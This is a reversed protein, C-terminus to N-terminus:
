PLDQEESFNWRLDWLTGTMTANVGGRPTMWSHWWLPPSAGMFNAAKRTFSNQRVKLLLEVGGICMFTCKQKRHGLYYIWREVHLKVWKNRVLGYGFSLLSLMKCPVSALGFIKWSGYSAANSGWTDREQTVLMLVCPGWQKKFSALLIFFRIIPNKACTVPAIILPKWRIHPLCKLPFHLFINRLFLSNEHFRVKKVLFVPM